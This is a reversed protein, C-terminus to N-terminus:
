TPWDRCGVLLADTRPSACLRWGRLGAHVADEEAPLSYRAPVVGCTMQVRIEPM